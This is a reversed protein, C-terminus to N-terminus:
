YGAYVKSDKIRWTQSGCGSEMDTALLMRITDVDGGDKLTIHVLGDIASDEVPTRLVRGAAFAENGDEVKIFFHIM